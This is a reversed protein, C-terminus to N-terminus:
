LRQLGIVFVKLRERAWLHGIQKIAKCMRNADEIRAKLMEAGGKRQELKAEFVPAVQPRRLCDM